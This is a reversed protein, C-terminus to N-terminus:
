HGAEEAFAILPVAAADELTYGPETRSGAVLLLALLFQASQAALGSKIGDLTQKISLGTVEEIAALEGITLSDETVEFPDVPRRAM